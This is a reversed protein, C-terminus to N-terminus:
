KRFNVMTSNVSTTPLQLENIGNFHVATFPNIEILLIQSYKQWVFHDAINVLAILFRGM